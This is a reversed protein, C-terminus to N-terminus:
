WKRPLNSLFRCLYSRAEALALSQSEGGHVLANRFERVGHARVLHSIPMSCRSAVSDMLRKITPHSRRGLNRKWFARLAVEFTAFMRILYTRELDNHCALIDRARFNAMRPIHLPDSRCVDYFHATAARGSACMSECSKIQRITEYTKM